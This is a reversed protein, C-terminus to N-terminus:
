RLPCPINNIYCFKYIYNRATFDSCNLLQMIYKTKLNQVGNDQYYTKMIELVQNLNHRKKTQLPCTINKIECFKRIYKYAYSLSCNLVNMINACTLASMANKNYEQEVIDFASKFSLRKKKNIVESEKPLIIKIEYSINELYEAVFQQKFDLYELSVSYFYYGKDHLRMKQRDILGENYLKLLTRDLVKIATFTDAAIHLKNSFPNQELYKLIKIANIVGYLRSLNLHQQVKETSLGIFYKFFYAKNKFHQHIEYYIKGNERFCSIVSKRKLVNLFNHIQNQSIGRIILFNVVYKYELKQHIDLLEILLLKTSRFDYFANEFNTAIQKLNDKRQQQVQERYLAKRKDAFVKQPTPKIAKWYM